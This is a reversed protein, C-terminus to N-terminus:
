PNGRQSAHGLLTYRSFDMQFTSIADRPGFKNKGVIIEVERIPSPEEAGGQKEDVGPAYIFIVCAAREEIEGSDRLDSLQPRKAEQGRQVFGRNLQALVVYAVGQEIALEQLRTMADGIEIRRDQDGCFKLLTLYDIVVLGTTNNERHRQVEVGIADVSLRRSDFLFRRMSSPLGARLRETSARIKAFKADGCNGALYSGVDLDCMEALMRAGFVDAGDEMGFYHVGCHMLANKAIIQALTSKGHSTRGAVVTVYGRPVGGGLKGDLWKIGTPVGQHSAEGNKRMEIRRGLDDVSNCVLDALTMPGAARENTRRMERQLIAWAAEQEDVTTAKAVIETAEAMASHRRRRSSDDRIRGAWFDWNMRAYKGDLSLAVLDDTVDVLGLADALMYPDITNGGAVVAARHEKWIRLQGEFAKRMRADAFDEPELGATDLIDPNSLVAAVLRREVEAGVTM